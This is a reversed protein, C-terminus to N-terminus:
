YNNDEYYSGNKKMAKNQRNHHKIREKNKQLYLQDKHSVKVNSKKKNNEKEKSETTTTNTSQPPPTQPTKPTTTTTTKPTKMVEGDDDSDNYIERNPNNELPAENSTM